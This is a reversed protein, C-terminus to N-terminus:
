RKRKRSAHKGLSSKQLGSELDKLFEDTYLNTKRFDVVFDDISYLILSCFLTGALARYASAQKNLRTYETQPITVQHM